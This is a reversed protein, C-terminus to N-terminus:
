PKPDGEAALPAELIITTGAGLNSTVVFTGGLHALRERISFLGFGGEKTAHFGEQPVVFGSGDDSVKMVISSGTRWVAVEAHKASAHKVVNVMLERASRYLTARTHAHLPKPQRDDIFTCTIGHRQQSEEVLTALAAELGLEHLVTAGLEAMLSRSSHVAQRVLDSIGTVSDKLPDPVAEGLAGLKIRTLALTQGIEDHLVTALERREREESAVLEGTLSRLKEEYAYREDEAELRETVDLGICLLGRTGYDVVAEFWEVQRLEGGSL